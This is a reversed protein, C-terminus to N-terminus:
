AGLELPQLDGPSGFAAAQLCVAHSTLGPRFGPLQWLSHCLPPCAGLSLQDKFIGKWVLLSRDSLQM